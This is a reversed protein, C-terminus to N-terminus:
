QLDSEMPPTDDEQWPGFRDSYYALIRDAQQRDSEEANEPYEIWLGGVQSRHYDFALSPRPTMLGAKLGNVQRLHAAVELYVALPLGPCSLQYRQRLEGATQM